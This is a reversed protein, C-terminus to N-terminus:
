HFHGNVGQLCITKPTRSDGKQCRSFHASFALRLATQKCALRSSIWFFCLTTSFVLLHEIFKKYCAELHGIKRNLGVLLFARWGEEV